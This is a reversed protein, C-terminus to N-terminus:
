DDIDVVWAVFADDRLEVFIELVIDIYAVVAYDYYPAVEICVM